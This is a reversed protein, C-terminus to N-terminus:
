FNEIAKELKIVMASTIETNGKTFPPLQAM